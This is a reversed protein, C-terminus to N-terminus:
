NNSVHSTYSKRCTYVLVIYDCQRFILPFELNNRLRSIHALYNHTSNIAVPQHFLATIFQGGKPYMASIELVHFKFFGILCREDRM